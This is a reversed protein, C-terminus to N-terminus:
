LLGAGYLGASHENIAWCTLAMSMSLEASLAWHQCHENIAWCALAMSMSLGASLAWCQCHENLAGAPWRVMSYLAISM